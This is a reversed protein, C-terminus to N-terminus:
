PTLDAIARLIRQESVSGKTGVHQAFHSVRLEEIMWRVPAIDGTAGRRLLDDFAREVAHVREMLAADKARNSAVKDLRHAAARLYRVLDVLRDAGTKTVFGPHVLGALQASVDVVVPELAASTMRDLRSEVEGLSVLVRGVDRGVTSAIAPLSSRVSERLGDFAVGDWVPGGGSRLAADVSAVVCDLLVGEPARGLALGASDALAQRVARACSPVNLLLLRRTGAWMATAAEGPTTFTRVGVADGEDVLAPFVQAVHEGVTVDVVRPLVGISWTRLGTQELGRAASTVTSRVASRLSSQLSALDASEGLVAGSEDVVRFGLRLHPPLQEPHLDHRWVGVYAALVELLPGDAPSHSACFADAHDTIPVLQRRVPKPLTRLLAAVLDRRHGPVNWDFGVPSVRDLVALPIEVTVGDSPSLPDLEYVLDLGLSGQRWVDPFDDTSVHGSGPQILLEKTYSLLDPQQLRENKWWRDFDRGSRVSLPVRADFFDFLAQDDVLIDRRRSRDELARVEEVLAANDAVFAHHSTWEGELLAHAIFLDRAHDPDIKGLSVKRASVIPLGYLTVKEHVYANAHAADWWPDSYTRQVLHEGIREAWEPQIRAVGRAWMRNTEVLEAALVWRPPRKALSSDRAIAFRAGRAGRYERAEDDRMGVHSLLGALVSRHIADATAREHGVRVGISRMVSRLQGVLDQWERVRLHNLHEDRCLRRFSSSGRAERSEQLYRWLNLYAILDSDPDDFRRHLEAAAAEAGLPRERPDQITLGAVIVLVEDLCGNRESELVMRGLRPDVPIRALRRGLKTLRADDPSIAGLEELLVLGDKIARHDPPEVFPFSAIDGLGIAKMQLIVSALNTRLIEPETFAPRALLDDESYLRICTGPAVRGCRGARQDASAQSIDEIPLRQVKTRRNYRSIRARGPDVVGVIGPVTISTEAVNTALVVRRGKHAAFVKHQEASTLRAYLPLIETDRLHLRRLADATDRIEREGSLFVLVDGDVHLDTVADVIAQTQDRKAEDFPEYRIDVPYTRGSVEVVPADDFHASFRATDITASTVILKLDPRRPLLQKLYGLLFDINLSREHAEDVIITDYRRLERDRQVEALLIGDTMVKVRTDRGVRDTFRVAYGVVGGIESDLESAVREAVTRAAIRRPQTHGILAGDAGRGLELCLKPLQTSKGSGTEGAVIVVQHAAIVELLAERRETIPLEPPYRIEM